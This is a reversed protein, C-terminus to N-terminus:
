WHATAQANDVIQHAKDVHGIARDRLGRAQPV